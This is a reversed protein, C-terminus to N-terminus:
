SQAPVDDATLYWMWEREQTIYEDPLVDNDIMADVMVSGLLRHLVNSMGHRRGIYGIECSACTASGSNWRIWGYNGGSSLYSAVRKGVTYGCPLKGNTYRMVWELPGYVDDRHEHAHNEIYTGVLSPVHISRAGSPTAYYDSAQKAAAYDFFAAADFNNLLATMDVNLFVVKM